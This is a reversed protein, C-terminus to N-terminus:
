FEFIWGKTQKYKKSLCEGIRSHTLGHEKAFACQNNDEFWEGTNTDFAMFWRQKANGCSKPRKNQAQELYTSWKCNEPEYDGDNDSWRDLTKGEPCPGMDEYFAEFSNRWHECVKIGRAGYNKYNTNNPNECRQIANSWSSYERSKWMGHITFTDIRLCGCSETDGQRLHFSSVFCINGCDCFCRWVVCGHCRREETAGLVVLRGFRQGTLDIAKGM